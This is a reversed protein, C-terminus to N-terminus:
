QEIREGTKRDYYAMAGKAHHEKIIAGLVAALYDHLADEDPTALTEPVYLPEFSFQLKTGRELIAVDNFKGVVNDYDPHKLIVAWADPDVSKPDNTILYDEGEVMDKM